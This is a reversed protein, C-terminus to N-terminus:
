TLCEKSCGLCQVCWLGLRILVNENIVTESNNNLQRLSFSNVGFIRVYKTMIIFVVVMWGGLILGFWLLLFFFLGVM